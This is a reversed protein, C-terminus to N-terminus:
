NNEIQKIIEYLIDKLDPKNCQLVKNSAHVHHPFTKFKPFHPANDWRKILENNKNQYHYRYKVINPFGKDIKVLEFLYLQSRDYFIIKSKYYGFNRDIIETHFDISILLPVAYLNSKVTQFYNTINM